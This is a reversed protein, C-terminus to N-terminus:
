PDFGGLDNFLEEFKILQTCKCCCDSTKVRPPVPFFLLFYLCSVNGVSNAAGRQLQVGFKWAIRKDETQLEANRHELPQMWILQCLCYIGPEKWPENKTSCFISDASCGM